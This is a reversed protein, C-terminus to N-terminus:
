QLVDGANYSMAAMKFITTCFFFNKERLQWPGVTSVNKGTFDCAELSMNHLLLGLYIAIALKYFDTFVTREVASHEVMFLCNTQYM